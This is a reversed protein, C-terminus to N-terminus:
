CVLAESMDVPGLVQPLNSTFNHQKVENWYDKGIITYQSIGEKCIM